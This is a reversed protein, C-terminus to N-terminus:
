AFHFEPGTDENWAKEWIGPKNFITGYINQGLQVISLKLNYLIEWHASIHLAM